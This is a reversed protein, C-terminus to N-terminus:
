GESLPYGKEKLFEELYYFLLDWAKREDHNALTLVHATWVVDHGRKVKEGLWRSIEGNGGVASNWSLGNVFGDVYVRLNNFNVPQFYMGPRSKMHPVVEALIEYVNKNEM